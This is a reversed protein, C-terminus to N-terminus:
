TSVQVETGLVWQFAQRPGGTNGAQVRSCAPQRSWVFGCNGPKIPLVHSLSHGRTIVSLLGLGGCAFADACSHGCVYLCSVCNCVVHECMCIFVVTAYVARQGKLLTQWWVDKRATDPHSTGSGKFKSWSRNNSPKKGGANYFMATNVIYGNIRRKEKKPSTNISKTVAEKRMPQRYSAQALNRQLM